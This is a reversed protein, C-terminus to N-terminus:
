DFTTIFSRFWEITRRLGDELETKPKWGLLTEARTTDPRRSRPDDATPLPKYIIESESGVLRIVLHAFQEVTFEFASGINVPTDVESQLLLWLGEVTDDVYCFSRTQRGDGYVTLPIGRLAQNIFNPVVRGDDLRMRPGYTNFLRAIRTDVRHFRRYAMTIAEAFRKAEDYVSRLGVPNVRGWYSEPQPHVEPDGYVESTSALLFRAAKAKALGLANHTGLSGVKLTQIPMDLYHQPSAPSALHLVCDVPGEIEIPKTVDHRIFEFRDGRLGAVNALDGTVVNDLCVVEHGEALLRECMHSGIFGAGGTVVSRPM